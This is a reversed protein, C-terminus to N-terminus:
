ASAKAFVGSYIADNAATAARKTGVVLLALPTLRSKNKRLLFM